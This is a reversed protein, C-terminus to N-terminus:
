SRLASQEGRSHGSGSLGQILEREWYSRRLISLIAQCKAHNM